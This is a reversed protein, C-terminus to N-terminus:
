LQCSGEGGATPVFWIKCGVGNAGNAGAHAASGAGGPNGAQSVFPFLDYQNNFINISLTVDRDAAGGAGGLGAGAPETSLAPAPLGGAGGTRATYTPTLYTSYVVATTAAPNYFLPTPSTGVQFISVSRGAAGGDGGDGGGGGGGGGGGAGAGGTHFLDTAIGGGGAGGTGGRGGRAGAQGVAGATAGLGTNTLTVKGANYLYLAIASGGPSGGPGGVGGIGGNGGAGGQSGSPGGVWSNGGGGGGGGGGAGATGAAGTAGKAPAWGDATAASPTVPVAPTFGGIGGKGGGGGLGVGSTAGKSGAAGGTGGPNLGPSQGADGPIGNSGGNGACCGSSGGGGGSGGTRNLPSCNGEPVAPQPGSATTPGRQANMNRNDANGQKGSCAVTWPTSDPNAPTGSVSYPAQAAVDSNQIDLQLDTATVGPGGLLRIGYTSFAVPYAPDPDSASAPCTPCSASTTRPNSAIDMQRIHLGKIGAVVLATLPKKSDGGREGYTFSHRFATYDPGSRLWQSMLGGQLTTYDAANTSNLSIQGDYSGNQVLVEPPATANLDKAKEFGAAISRVPVPVGTANVSGNILKGILPGSTYRADSGTTSVFVAQGPIWDFWLPFGEGAATSGPTGGYITDEGQQTLKTWVRYEGGADISGLSLASSSETGVKLDLYWTETPADYHGDVWGATSGFTGDAALTKGTTAQRVWFQVNFDTVGGTTTKPPLGPALSLKQNFLAEPSGQAAGVWHTYRYRADGGSRTYPSSYLRGVELPIGAGYLRRQAQLEIYSRGNMIVVCQWKNCPKTGAGDPGFVTYAPTSGVDGVKDAVVTERGGTLSINGIVGQCEDRIFRMDRGLGSIWYSVRRVSTVASSNVTTSNYTVFLTASADTSKCARATTYSVGAADASSVDATWRSSALDRNYNANLTEGTQDIVQYAVRWASAIPVLLVALVAVVVILEILTFGASSSRPGLASRRRRGSIHSILM